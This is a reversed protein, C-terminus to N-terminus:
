NGRVKIMKRIKYWQGLLKLWSQKIKTVKEYWEFQTDNVWFNPDHNSLKRLRKMDNSNHIMSGFTQTM